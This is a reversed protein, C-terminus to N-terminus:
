KLEESQDTMVIDEVNLEKSIVVYKNIPVFGIYTVKLNHNGSTLGPFSYFGDIDTVASQKNTDIIVVAGPLPRKENDLIRGKLLGTKPGDAAYM